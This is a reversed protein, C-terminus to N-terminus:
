SRTYLREFKTKVKEALFALAVALLSGSVAAPSIWSHDVLIALAALAIAIGILTQKLLNTIQYARNCSSCIQTHRSFRDVSVTNEPVDSTKEPLKSTEYGQYFPLSSGFKDLWKRYEVVLTDSTKLPLYVEKLNQGLREIEEQAGQILLLDEELTRNRYFHAFWRPKLKIKWTSFNQYFRAMVRCRGKGLPISYHALGLESGSKPFDCLRFLVLNPAVFDLDLWNANPIRTNRSRGRIRNISTELVQIELPQANKRHSDSGHHSIPIHAPDLINEICYTQDYPRDSMLDMTVFKPDDLQPITPILTEDAAEPQGAWMWVIKQREVVLYSKICSNIPIKAEKPLQPIHLCEGDIGFQWGHYLCEIKGDFIHGDSLRAARHSCRDVICGLKGDKNKFLVLPEDYLSFKYPKDKPLDQIFSVPYWCNRWDFEQDNAPIPSSNIALETEPKNPTITM